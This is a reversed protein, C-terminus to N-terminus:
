YTKLTTSSSNQINLIHCTQHPLPVNESLQINFTEELLFLLHM